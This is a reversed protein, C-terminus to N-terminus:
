YRVIFCIEMVVRLKLVVKGSVVIKSYIRKFIYKRINLNWKFYIGGFFVNYM